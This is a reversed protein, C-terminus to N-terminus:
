LLEKLTRDPLYIILVGLLIGLVNSLIPYEPLFYIDVLNWVGRWVLIVAVAILLTWLFRSRPRLSVSVKKSKKNEAM